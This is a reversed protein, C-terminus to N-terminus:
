GLGLLSSPLPHLKATETSVSNSLVLDPTADQIKRPPSTHPSAAIEAPQVYVPSEMDGCSPSSLSDEDQVKNLALSATSSELKNQHDILILDCM